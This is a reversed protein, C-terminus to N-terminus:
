GAQAPQHPQIYVNPLMEPLPPEAAPESLDFNFHDINYPPLDDVEAPLPGATNHTARAPPIERKKPRLVCFCAFYCLYDVLRLIDLFHM